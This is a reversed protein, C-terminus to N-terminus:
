VHADDSSTIIALRSEAEIARRKWACLETELAAVRARLTTSESIYAQSVEDLRAVLSDILREDEENTPIADAVHGLAEFEQKGEGTV